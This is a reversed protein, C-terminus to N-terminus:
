LGRVTGGRQCTFLVNQLKIESKIIKAWFGSRLGRAEPYNNEPAETEARSLLM